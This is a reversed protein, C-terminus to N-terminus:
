PSEVIDALRLLKSSLTIGVSRTVGLNIRMRIKDDSLFMEIMGGEQAFGSQDSVWLIPLQRLKTWATDKPWNTSESLYVMNCTNNLQEWRIPIVRLSRGEELEKGDLSKLSESVESNGLVCLHIDKLSKGDAENPWQTFTAFHYIYAAKIHAIEADNKTAADTGQWILILLLSALLIKNMMGSM